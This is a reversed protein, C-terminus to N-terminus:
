SNFERLYWRILWISAAVFPTAFTAFLVGAFVDLLIADLLHV